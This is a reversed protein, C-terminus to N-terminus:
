VSGFIRTPGLARSGKFEKRSAWSSSQEFEFEFKWRKKMQELPIMRSSSTDEWERARWLELDPDISDRTTPNDTGPPEERRELSLHIEKLHRHV